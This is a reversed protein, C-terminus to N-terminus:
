SIPGSIEPEIGVTCGRPTGRDARPVDRPPLAVGHGEGGGGRVGPRVVRRWHAPLAAVGRHRVVRLVGRVDADRHAPGPPPPRGNPM